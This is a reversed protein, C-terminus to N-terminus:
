VPTENTKPKQSPGCKLKASTYKAWLLTKKCGSTGETEGAATEGERPRNQSAELGKSMKFGQNDKLARDILDLEKTRPTLPCV